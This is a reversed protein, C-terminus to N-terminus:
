KIVTQLFETLENEEESFSQCKFHCNYEFLKKMDEHDVCFSSLKDDVINNSLNEKM